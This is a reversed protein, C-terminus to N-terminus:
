PFSYPKRIFLSILEDKKLRGEQSKTEVTFFPSFSKMHLYNLLISSLIAAELGSEEKLSLSYVRSLRSKNPLISQDPLVLWSLISM